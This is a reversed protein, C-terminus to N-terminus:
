THEHKRAADLYLFAQCDQLLQGGRLSLTHDLAQCGPRPAVQLVFVVYRLLYPRNAKAACFPRKTDKQERKFRRRLVNTM